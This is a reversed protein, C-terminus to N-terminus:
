STDWDTVSNGMQSRSFFPVIDDGSADTTRCALGETQNRTRTAGLQEYGDAHAEIFTEAEKLIVKMPTDGQRLQESGPGYPGAGNAAHALLTVHMVVFDDLSLKCDAQSVPIAFGAEALFVNLHASVRDIFKEVQALTPRTATSYSGSATYRTTLAAVEAVSGYSNTGIGM